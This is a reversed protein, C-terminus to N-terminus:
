KSLKPRVNKKIERRERSILTYNRTNFEHLTEPTAHQGVYGAYSIARAVEIAMAPGTDAYGKETDSDQASRICETIDMIIENDGFSQDLRVMFTSRGRTKTEVFTGM